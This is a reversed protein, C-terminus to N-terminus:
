GALGAIAPGAGRAALRGGQIGAPLNGPPSRCVTTGRQAEAVDESRVGGGRALAETGALDRRAERVAVELERLRLERAELAELAAAVRRARDTTLADVGYRGVEDRSFADMELQEASRPVPETIYRLLPVPQNPDRATRPGPEFLQPLPEDGTATPALFVLALLGSRLGGPTRRKARNRSERSPMMTRGKLLLCLHLSLGSKLQRRSNPRDHRCPRRLAPPPPIAGPRDLGGAGASPPRPPEPEPPSAEPPVDPPPLPVTRNLLRAPRKSVDLGAAAARVVLSWLDTDCPPILRAGLLELATARLEGLCTPFKLLDILRQDSVGAAAVRLTTALNALTAPDTAREALEALRDFIPGAVEGDVRM